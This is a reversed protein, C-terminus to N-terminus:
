KNLSFTIPLKYYFRVPNGELYAPQFKGLLKVVRVAEEDLSPHVSQVISVNSISGDKEIVFSVIVKGEIKNKKAEKPYSLNKKLKVRYDEPPISKKHFPTCFTDVGTSTFCQAQQSVGNQYVEDRKLKGTDYYLKLEGHLQGYHYNAVKYLQGNDYYSLSKGHKIRESYNSYYNTYVLQGAITYKAVQAASDHENAKTIVIRHTAVTKNCETENKDVWIEKVVQQAAIPFSFLLSILLLHFFLKAKM